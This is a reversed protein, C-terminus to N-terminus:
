SCFFFVFCFFFSFISFLNTGALSPKIVVHFSIVVLLFCAHKIRVYQDVGDVSHWLIM